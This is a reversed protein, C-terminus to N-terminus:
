FYNVDKTSFITLNTMQLIFNFKTEADDSENEKKKVYTHRSYKRTSDTSM